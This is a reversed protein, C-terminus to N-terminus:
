VENEFGIPPAISHGFNQGRFISVEILPLSRIIGTSSFDDRVVESSDNSNISLESELVLIMTAM